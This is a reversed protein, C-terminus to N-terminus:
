EGRAGARDVVLPPTPRSGQLVEMHKEYRDLVRQEAASIMREEKLANAYQALAIGLSIVLEDIEANEDRAAWEAILRRLDSGRPLGLTRVKAALETRSPLEYTVTQAAETPPQVDPSAPVPTTTMVGGYVSAFELM